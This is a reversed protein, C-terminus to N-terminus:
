TAVAVIANASTALSVGLWNQVYFGNAFSQPLDRFELKKVHAGSPVPLDFFTNLNTIRIFPTPASPTVTGLWLVLTVRNSVSSANASLVTSTAGHALGDIASADLRYAKLAAFSEILALTSNIRSATAAGITSVALLSATAEESLLSLLSQAVPYDADSASSGTALTGPTPEPVIEVTM